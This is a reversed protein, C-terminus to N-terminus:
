SSVNTKNSSLEQYHRNFSKSFASMLLRNRLGFFIAVFFATTLFGSTGRKTILVSLVILVILAFISIGYIRVRILLRERSPVLARFWPESILETLAVGPNLGIPLHGEKEDIEGIKSELLSKLSSPDQHGLSPVYACIPCPSDMKEELPRIGEHCGPCLFYEILENGCESCKEAWAMYETKCTPCYKIINERTKKDNM